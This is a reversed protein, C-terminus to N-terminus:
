STLAKRFFVVRETEEFGLQRHAALSASNDMLVDSALEACGVRRAWTEVERVLARAVGQKRAAEAVYLGELFAVPSSETGNVYDFRLAAEAFGVATGSDDEAIFAACRGQDALQAAIEVGHESEACEPWLLGRMAKWAQCHEPGAAHIKM